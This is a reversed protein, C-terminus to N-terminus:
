SWRGITRSSMSIMAPEGNWFEDRVYTTHWFPGVRGTATYRSEENRYVLLPDGPEMRELNRRNREWSGQTPDTRVGRVGEEFAGYAEFYRNERDVVDGTVVVADVDRDIAEDVTSQWIAKPSFNPGDLDTPIRTPHRGIHIDSTCLISVEESM